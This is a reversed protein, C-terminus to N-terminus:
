SLCQMRKVFTTCWLSVKWVQWHECQFEGFEEHWKQFWSDTKGWVKYWEETVHPMVRRYKRM